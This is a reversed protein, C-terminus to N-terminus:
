GTTSRNALQWWRDIRALIDKDPPLNSLDYGPRGDEEFFEDNIRVFLVPFLYKKGAKEKLEAFTLKEEHPREAQDLPVGLPRFRWRNQGQAVNCTTRMASILATEVTLAIDRSEFPGAIELNYRGKKLHKELEVNHTKSIHSIARQPSEGYGVYLPSGDKNRYLYVFHNHERDERRSKM